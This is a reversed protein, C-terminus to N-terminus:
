ASPHHHHSQHNLDAAICERCRCIPHHEARFQARNSRRRTRSTAKIKTRVQIGRLIACKIGEVTWDEPHVLHAGLACNGIQIAAEGGYWQPDEDGMSGYWQTTWVLRARIPLNISAVEIRDRYTNFVGGTTETIAVEMAPIPLNIGHTPGEFHFIGSMHGDKVDMPSQNGWDRLGPNCAWLQAKAILRDFACLACVYNNYDELGIKAVLRTVPKSLIDSGHVSSSLGMM